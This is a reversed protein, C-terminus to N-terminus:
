KLYKDGAKPIFSNRPDFEGEGNKVYDEIVSPDASRHVNLRVNELAPRITKIWANRFDKENYVNNAMNAIAQRVEENKTVAKGAETLMLANELRQIISRNAKGQEGVTWDSVGPIQSLLKKGYGVGQLQGVPVDLMKNVESVADAIQPIGSKRLGESFQRVNHQQQQSKLNDFREQRLTAADAARGAADSARGAALEGLTRRLLNSDEARTNKGEEATTALTERLMRGERATQERSDRADRALQTQQLRTANREDEYMPSSIFDGTGPIAFGQSGMPLPKYQNQAQTAAMKAAAAAGPNNAMQAIAAMPDFQHAQANASQMMQEQQRRRLLQAEMQQRQLPDLDTAASSLSYDM